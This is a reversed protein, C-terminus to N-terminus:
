PGAEEIEDLLRELEGQDEGEVVLHKVVDGEAALLRRARDFDPRLKKEAPPALIANFSFDIGRKLTVLRGVWSNAKEVISSGSQLDLSVPELVNLIGNTYSGQFEYTYDETGLKRPQLSRGPRRDRLTREFDSWIQSEQRGQRIPREHRTVFQKFIEPLRSDVDAVIGGCIPGWRFATSDEPLVLTMLGALHDPLGQITPFMGEKGRYAESLANFRESLSRVMNRYHNGDFADQFFQSIRGYRTNFQVRFLRKEPALIALGVNVSEGSAEHHVYKILTYEYRTM